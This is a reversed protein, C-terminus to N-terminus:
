KKDPALRELRIQWLGSSLWGTTKILHHPVLGTRAACPVSALKQDPTARVLGTESCLSHKHELSPVISSFSLNYFSVLSSLLIFFLTCPSLSFLSFHLVVLLNFVTREPSIRLGYCLSLSSWFLQPMLSQDCKVARFLLSTARKCKFKLARLIKVVLLLSRKSSQKFKSTKRKEQRVFYKNSGEVFTKM